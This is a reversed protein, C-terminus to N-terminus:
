KSNTQNQIVTQLSEITAKMQGLQVEYRMKLEVNENLVKEYKQLLAENLIALEEDRTNTSEELHIHCSEKLASNEKVLEIVKSKYEDIIYNLEEVQKTCDCSNCDQFEFSKCNPMERLSQLKDKSVDPSAGRDERAVEAYVGNELHRTAKNHPEQQLRYVMYGQQGECMTLRQRNSEEPHLVDKLDIIATGVYAVYGEGVAVVCVGVLSGSGSFM